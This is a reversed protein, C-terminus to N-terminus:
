NIIQNQNSEEENKKKNNQEMSITLYFGQGNIMKFVMAM